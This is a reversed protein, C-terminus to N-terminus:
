GITLRMDWHLLLKPSIKMLKIMSLIVEIMQIFTKSSSQPLIENLDSLPNLIERYVGM